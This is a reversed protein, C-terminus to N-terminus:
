GSLNPRFFILPCLEDYAKMADSARPPRLPFSSIIFCVRYGSVNVDGMGRRLNHREAGPIRAVYDSDVETSHERAELM